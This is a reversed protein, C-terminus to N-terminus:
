LGTCVPAKFSLVVGNAPVGLPRSSNQSFAAQGFAFLSSPQITQSTPLSCTSSVASSSTVFSSSSVKFGFETSKRSESESVALGPVSQSVAESHNSTVSSNVFCATTGAAVITASNLPSTVAADNDDSHQKSNTMLTSAFVGSQQSSTDTASATVPSRIATTSHVTSSLQSVQRKYM